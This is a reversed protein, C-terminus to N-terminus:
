KYLKVRRLLTKLSVLFPHASPTEKNSPPRVQMGARITVCGVQVTLDLMESSGSRTM